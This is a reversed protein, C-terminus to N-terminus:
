NLSIGGRAQASRTPGLAELMRIEWRLFEGIEKLRESTSLCELLRQKQPTAIDLVGAIYSLAEAEAPLEPAADEPLGPAEKSAASLRERYEGLLELVRAAEAQLSEPEEPEDHLLEVSARLYPLDDYTQLIRFRQVGVALLDMKGDEYRGVNVIRAVSGVRHTKAPAGVETGDTILVVGFRPDEALCRNMMLKYREEFIHLPLVMGPFLVVQLPFLALDDIRM